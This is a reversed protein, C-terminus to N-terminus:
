SRERPACRKRFLMLWLAVVIGFAYFTNKKLRNKLTPGTTYTIYKKLLAFPMKKIAVTRYTFLLDNVFFWPNDHQHTYIRNGGYPAALHIIYAKPEFYIRYGNKVLRYAVDSEERLYNKVYSTYYGGIKRLVDTKISYNGGPFDNTPMGVKCNFTGHMFGLEDFYLVKKVLPVHEQIVRGAVASVDPQQDYVRLHQSIFDDAIEIDDDIFIIIEGRAKELIFNRAAPSNPPAIKYYRFRRDERIIIKLFDSTEDEHIESQDAVILEVNKYEQGLIMRITNILEKERAFTPLAITVLIETAKV